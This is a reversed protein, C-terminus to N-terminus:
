AIRGDHEGKFIITSPLVTGDGMITVAVTARRTNNRSTCIHITKRGVLELTRKTNMLFYVPMQDMNLMFHWNHHPGFLLPCILYTYNSAEAEVEELKRQCLHMGMQYVMSHARVFPKVASCRTVFDKKGFKTSLNSVVVVMSLTSVEIGQKCQKFIYKLLAEELPKLQSLQGPHISKKKTKLLAKIPNNDLSFCEVWKVLLGASVQVHEASKLLSIGDEDRLCKAMALLALKRWATYRM